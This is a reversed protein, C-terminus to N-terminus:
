RYYNINEFADIAKQVKTMLSIQDIPTKIFEYFGRNYAVFEEELCSGNSVLIAPIHKAEPLNKMAEILRYGDLKKLDKETLVVCPSESLIMKFAQIGDKAVMIRYGKSLLLQEIEVYTDLIDVAVLITKRNSSLSGKGLYNKNIAEIIETRSAVFLSIELDHNKSINNIIKSDTPDATALYLKNKELKFPFIMYSFANDVSILKRLDPTLTYEVLNRIRKYGFQNALATAIEDSTVVGMDELVYGLRRQQKTARALARQLTKKTIIGNEVFIEGIKQKNKAM